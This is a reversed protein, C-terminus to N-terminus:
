AFVNCVVERIKDSLFRLFLYIHSINLQLSLVKANDVTGGSNYGAYFCLGRSSCVSGDDSRPCEKPCGMAHNINAVYNCGTFEYVQMKLTCFIMNKAHFM